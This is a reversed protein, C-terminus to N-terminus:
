TSSSEARAASVNLCLMPFAYGDGERFPRAAEALRARVDRTSEPSLGRLIPSIAGALETLFSWHADASDFRLVLAMEELQAIRFGAATVLETLRERDALAFIGPAAPAPPPTHGGRVLIGAVLSAWPNREPASFVSFALRGGPRLVRHTESFAAAPDPMLMYGWRCVAGDVSATDLDMREANLERFEVNTVALEQARRQAAAVMAPAFDTILVRGAPAVLKAALFGTEGLRAAIDLITQGPRPTVQEVLWESVPRSLEWLEDRRTEWGAAM